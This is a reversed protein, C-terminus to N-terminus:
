HKNASQFTWTKLSMWFTAIFGCLMAIIVSIYLIVLAKAYITNNQRYNDPKAFHFYYYFGCFGCVACHHTGKTRGFPVDCPSATMVCSTSMVNRKRLGSEFWRGEKATGSFITPRM